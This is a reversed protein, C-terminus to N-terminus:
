KMFKQAKSWNKRLIPRAKTTEGESKEGSFHCYNEKFNDNKYRNWSKFADLSFPREPNFPIKSGTRICFGPVFTKKAPKNTKSYYSNTNDDLVEVGVTKTFLGFFRKKKKVEQSYVVESKDIINSFYKYAETDLTNDGLFKLMRREFLVGVEINNNMSYEHLNLSTIISRSDNAYFKAHLDSNYRIELNKFGKFFELDERSLSKAVDKENKGYLLDVFFDDNGQHRRLAKKIDPHLKIFPSVIIIGTEAEKFLKLVESSLATHKIFQAM